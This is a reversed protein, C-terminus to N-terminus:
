WQNWQIWIKFLYVWVFFFFVLFLVHAWNLRDMEQKAEAAAPTTMTKNVMKKEENSGMGISEGWIHMWALYRCYFIHWMWFCLCVHYANLTKSFVSWIFQSPIFLLLLFFVYVLMAAVRHYCLATRVLFLVMCFIFRDWQLLLRQKRMWVLKLRYLGRCEVCRVCAAAYNIVFFVFVVNPQKAEAPPPIATTFSCIYNPTHAHTQNSILYFLM